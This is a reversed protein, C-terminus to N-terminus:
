IGWLEPNELAISAEGEIAAFPKETPIGFRGCPALGLISLM